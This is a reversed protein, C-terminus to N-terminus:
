CTLPNLLIPVSKRLEFTPTPLVSGKGVRQSVFFHYGIVDLILANMMLSFSKFIFVAFM